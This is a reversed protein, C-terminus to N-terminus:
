RTGLIRIEHIIAQRQGGNREPTAQIRMGKRLTSASVMNGDADRVSLGPALEYAIDNIVVTTRQPDISDIKGAGRVAEAAGPGSYLAATTLLSFWVLSKGKM